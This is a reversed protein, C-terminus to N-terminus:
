GEDLMPFANENSGFARLISTDYEHATVYEVFSLREPAWRPGETTILTPYGMGGAGEAGEPPFVVTLNPYPYEGFREEYFPITKGSTPWRASPRARTARRICCRSRLTGPSAACSAFADGRPSRSTMCPARSTACGTPGGPHARGSGQREGCAGVVWGRPVDVTADYTGYEAYFETNGHFPFHAWRGDPRCCRSRRSGSAAMHFREHYGTRAFVEPLVSKWAMELTISEGPLM